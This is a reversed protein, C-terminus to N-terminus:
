SQAQLSTVTHRKMNSKCSPASPRVSPRDIVDHSYFWIKECRHTVLIKKAITSRARLEALIQAGEVNGAYKFFVVCTKSVIKKYALREFISYIKRKIYGDRRFVHKHSSAIKAGSFCNRVDSLEPEIKGVVGLCLDFGWGPFAKFIM